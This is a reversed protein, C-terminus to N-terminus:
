PEGGAAGAGPGGNSNVDAAEEDGLSDRLEKKQQAAVQKALLSQMKPMSEKLPSLWDVGRGNFCGLESARLAAKEMAAVNRCGTRFGAVSQGASIPLSKTFASFGVASSLLLQAALCGGM